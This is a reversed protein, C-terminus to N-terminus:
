RLVIAAGTHRTEVGREFVGDPRRAVRSKPHHAVLDMAAATVAVETVNEVITRWRRAQPVAHVAYRQFEMRFFLATLSLSRLTAMAASNRAQALAGACACAGRMTESTGDSVSSRKAMPAPGCTTPTECYLSTGAAAALSGITAEAPEIALSRM